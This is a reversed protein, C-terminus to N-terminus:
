AELLVELLRLAVDDVDLLHELDEALRRVFLLADGELAELLLVLLHGLLRGDDSM